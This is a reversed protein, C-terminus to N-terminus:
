PKHHNWRARHGRIDMHIIMTGPYYGLGGKNSIIQKDLLKYVIDKDTKNRYGDRNIDGIRLDVAKGQLHMSQSAGGVRSNYIRSRYASNVNIQSVDYNKKELSEVTQFLSRILKENIYLYRVEKNKISYGYLRNDGSLFQNIRTNLFIKRHVDNYPIVYVFDDFNAPVQNKLDPPLENQKYKRYGSIVKTFETYNKVPGNKHVIDYITAGIVDLKFYALVLFSIISCIFTFFVILILRKRKFM